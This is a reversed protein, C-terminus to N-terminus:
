TKMNSKNRQATRRTSIFISSLEHAENFLPLVKQRQMLKEDMIFQEKIRRYEIRVWVRNIHDDDIM